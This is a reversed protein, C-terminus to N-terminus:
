IPVAERLRIKLCIKSTVRFIQVFPHAPCVNTYSDSRDGKVAVTQLDCEKIYAQTPFGSLLALRTIKM